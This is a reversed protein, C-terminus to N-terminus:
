FNYGVSVFISRPILPINSYSQMLPTNYFYQYSKVNTINSFIFSTNLKQSINYHAKLELFLFSNKYTTFINNNYFDATLIFNMKKNLILKQAITNKLNLVEKTIGNQSQHFQSHAVILSANSIFKLQYMKNWSRRVSLETTIQSNKNNLIKGLTYSYRNGLNYFIKFNILSSIPMVVQQMEFNFSIFSSNNKIISDKSFIFTNDLKSTYVFSKFNHQYNIFFSNTNGAKKAKFLNFSMVSLRLKPIPAFGSTGSQFKNTNYTYYISPLAMLSVIENNFGINIRPFKSVTNKSNIDVSAFYYPYYYSSKKNKEYKSLKSLGAHYSSQVSYKKFSKAWESKLYMLISSYRGKDSLNAIPHQIQGQPYSSLYSQNIINIKNFDTQFKPMWKIGKNNKNILEAAIFGSQINFNPKIYLADMDPDLNKFADSKSFSANSIKNLLYNGAISIARNENIRKIIGLNWEATISKILGSDLQNALINNFTRNRYSNNVISFQSYEQKLSIDTKDNEWSLEQKAYYNKPKIRYMNTDFSAVWGENMLQKDYSNFQQRQHTNLFSLEIKQKIRKTLNANTEFQIIQENNKIYRNPDFSQILNFSPQTNTWNNYAGASKNNVIYDNMYSNYNIGMSNINTIIGSKIKSLISFVTNKIAFRNENGAGLDINGFLQISREKNLSLNIQTESANGLGKLAKHKTQNEIAQINKLLHIPFNNMLTQTRNAFLETGEILISNVRKYNYYLNGQEDLKFGPIKKLIDVLNKEDGEKYADVTHFTTDGIRWKPPPVVLEELIKYNRSLAIILNGVESIPTTVKKSHYSINSIEIMVNKITSSDLKTNFCNDNVGTFLQALLLHNDANFIRITNNIIGEHSSDDIICGKISVM